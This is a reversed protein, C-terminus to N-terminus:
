YVEIFNKIDTLAQHVAPNAWNIARDFNMFTTAEIPYKELEKKIEDLIDQKKIWEAPIPYHVFAEKLDQMSLPKIGKVLTKYKKM